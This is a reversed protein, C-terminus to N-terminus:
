PWATSRTTRRRSPCRPADPEALVVATPTGCTWGDVSRGVVQDAGPLPGAERLLDALPVGLWRATGILDGGVPNSVCAVTVYREVMPRALLEDFTLTYPRRVRGHIRLRWTDPDVRPVVIATDVRFFDDNSTVYSALGRLGLDAGAPVPPAPDTPPPLTVRARAADVDRWQGLWRGGVGAVAAGAVLLGATRLFARRGGTAMPGPRPAPRWWWLVAGGVVAGVVSPLAAVITECRVVAAAVGIAGLGAVGVGAAIPRWWRLVGLGAGVALVVVVVTAQLATKAYRGFVALGVDTVSAPARDVTVAAFAALPSTNPGTLVATLEAAALAVAAAVVGVVARRVM